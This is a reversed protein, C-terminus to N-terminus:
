VITWEREEGDWPDEGYVSIEIQQVRHDKVRAVAMMGNPVGSMEIYRGKLDLYGDDLRVEDATELDIYRGAGTNERRRVRVKDVAPFGCDGYLEHFVALLAAELPSPHASQM